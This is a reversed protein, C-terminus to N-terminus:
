ATECEEAAAGHREAGAYTPQAPCVRLSVLLPVKPATAKLKVHGMHVLVAVLDSDDTYM